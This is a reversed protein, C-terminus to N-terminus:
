ADRRRSARRDATRIVEAVAQVVAAYADAPPLHSRDSRVEGDAPEVTRGRTWQVDGAETPAIPQHIAIRIAAAAELLVGHGERDALALLRAGTELADVLVWRDAEVDIQDLAIALHDAGARIDAADLSLRALNVEGLAITTRTMSQTGAEVALEAYRRAAKPRGLGRAVAALRYAVTGETPRHGLERFILLAENGTQLAADLNGAKWHALTLAALVHGKALPDGEVLAIALARELLPRAQAPLGEDALLSGLHLLTTGAEAELGAADLRELSAELFRQAAPVDDTAAAIAGRRRLARGEGAADGLSAFIGAAEDALAAGDGFDTVWYALHARALLAAARLAPEPDTAAVLRGIVDLGEAPHRGLWYDTLGVAVDLASPDMRTSLVWRIHPMERDLRLLVESREGSRLRSILRSARELVVSVYRDRAAALASPESTEVTRGALTRLIEYRTPGIGSRVQVLSADVLRAVVDFADVQVDDLGAVTTVLELDGDGVLLALALLAQRETPSLRELSADLAAWLGPRGGAPGGAWRGVDTEVREVVDDLTLLQLHRAVLEIGLPLRDVLRCLRDAVPADDPRLQFHPDVLRARDVLLAVAEAPALPGIPIVAEDLDGLRERSTVLIRVDPCTALLRRIVTTTESLRGECGDLVLLGRADGIAQGIGELADSALSAPAVVDLIAASVSRPAEVHAVSAFWVAGSAARAVEVALRTKGTGPPGLLTSLRSRAVADDIDTREADRGILRTSTGPIRTAVPASSPSTSSAPPPADLSPSQALVAQQMRRLGPGPDLGLDDVLRRRCAAYADLADAQRGARYLALMLLEWRRERYPQEEVLERAEGIRDAARGADLELALVEERLTERLETWRAAPAQAEGLDDLDELPRGRWRELAERFLSVAGERDGAAAAARAEHALREVTGADTPSELLYREGRTAIAVGLRRLRFVHTAITHRSATPPEEGWVAEELADLGVPRGADMALRALTRRQLRG